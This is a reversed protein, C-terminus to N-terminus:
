LGNLWDKFEDRRQTDVAADVWTKKIVVDEIFVQYHSM